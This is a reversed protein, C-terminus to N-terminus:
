APPLPKISTIKAYQNKLKADNPNCIRFELPASQLDTNRFSNVWLCAICRYEGSVYSSGPIDHLSKQFTFVNLGRNTNHM